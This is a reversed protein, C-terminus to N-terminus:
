WRLWWAWIYVNGHTFYIALLFNSYLAPLETQLETVVELPLIAHSTLPLNM